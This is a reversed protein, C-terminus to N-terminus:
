EGVRDAVHGHEVASAIPDAAHPAGAHPGLRHEHNRVAALEDESLSSTDRGNLIYQGETASDLCGILNMLTSKGSGSPGILAVYENRGIFLDVGALALVTEEGMHYRKVLGRLEIM